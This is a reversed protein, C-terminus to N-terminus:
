NIYDSTKAWTDNETVLYTVNVYLSCCMDSRWRYTTSCYSSPHLNWLESVNTQSHKRTTFESPIVCLKYEAPSICILVHLVEADHFESIILIYYSNKILSIFSYVSTLTLTNMDVLIGGTSLYLYFAKM